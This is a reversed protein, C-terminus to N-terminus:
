GRNGGKIRPTFESDWIEQTLPSVHKYLITGDPGILFTEPAGYVGFEIGVRGELDFAIAEYPNGLAQLWRLADTREDRWNLGVVPIIKKQNLGLLFDHEDRCAFCWSAWVNVLFYQGKYTSPSVRKSPDLLDPLDFAPVPKDLLPSDLKGPDKGLTRAFVVLLIVLGLVPLLYRTM